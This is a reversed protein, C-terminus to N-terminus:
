GATTGEPLLATVAARLDDVTTASEVVATAAPDAGDLIALLVREVTLERENEARATMAARRLAERAAESMRGGRGRGRPGRRGRGGEWAGFWIGDPGFQAQFGPGDFSAPGGHPRGHHPRGGRGRGREPRQGWGESLDEGFRDGVAERVKDLDIGISRLAERDEEYRDRVDEVPGDDDNRVVKRAEALTLGQDTLVTFLPSRANCLMGLILHDTGIQRSGLDKAEQVAFMFSARADSNFRDFM